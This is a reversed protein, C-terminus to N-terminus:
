RGGEIPYLDPRLEHRSVGTAKEVQLVREAPVRNRRLWGYVSQRRLGLDDAFEYLGGGILIARALPTAAEAIRTNIKNKNKERLALTVEDRFEPPLLPLYKAPLPRRGAEIQNVTRLTLGLVRDLDFQTM